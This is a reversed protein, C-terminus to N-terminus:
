YLEADMPKDISKVKGLKDATKKAIHEPTKIHEALKSATPVSINCNHCFYMGSIQGELNGVEEKAVIRAKHKDGAFHADMQQSSNVTVNCTDCRFRAPTQIPSSLSGVNASLAFKKKHKAGAIHAEYQAESNFKDNCIKCPIQKVERKVKKEESNENEENENNECNSEVKEANQKQGNTDTTVAPTAVEKKEESVGEVKRKHKSGSTHALYQTPSNFCIGCIDCPIQQVEKKRKQPFASKQQHTASKQPFAGVMNGFVAKKVPDVLYPRGNNWNGGIPTSDMVPTNSNILPTYGTSTCLPSYSENNTLPPYSGPNAYPAYNGNNSWSASNAHADYQGYRGYSM